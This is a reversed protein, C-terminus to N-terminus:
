RPPTAATAAYANPGEGACTPAPVFCPHSHAKAATRAIMGLVVAPQPMVATPAAKANRPMPAAILRRFVGAASSAGAPAGGTSPPRGGTSERNTASPPAAPHRRAPPYFPALRGVRSVATGGVGLLLM